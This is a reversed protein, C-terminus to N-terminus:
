LALAARDAALVDVGNIRRIVNPVDIYVLERGNIELSYFRCVVAAELQAVDGAKAEGMNLSKYAGQMKVIVNKSAGDGKLIGRFTLQVPAQDTVGFLKFVDESWEHMTFGGELSEMGMDVSVPVDLGGARLEELKIVLDPMKVTECVGALGKGDVILNFKTLVQPLQM